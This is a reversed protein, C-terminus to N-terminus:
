VLHCQVGPSMCLDDRLAAANSTLAPCRDWFCVVCWSVLVFSLLAVGLRSLVIRQWPWRLFLCGALFTEVGWFLIAVRELAHIQRARKQDRRSNFYFNFVAEFNGQGFRFATARPLGM